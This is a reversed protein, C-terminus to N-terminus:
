ENSLDQLGFRPTATYENMEEFLGNENDFQIWDEFGMSVFDYLSNRQVASDEAISRRVDKIIEEIDFAEGSDAEAREYSHMLMQILRIGNNAIRSRNQNYRLYRLSAYIIDKLEADSTMRSEGERAFLLEFIIWVTATIIQTNVTWM